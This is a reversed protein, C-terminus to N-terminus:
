RKGYEKYLDELWSMQSGSIYTQNGYRDIRDALQTIFDEERYNMNETYLNLEEIIEIARAVNQNIQQPVYSLIDDEEKNEKGM